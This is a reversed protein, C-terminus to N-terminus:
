RIPTLATSERDRRNRAGGIALHGTSKSVASTINCKIADM